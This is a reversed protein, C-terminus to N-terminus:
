GVRIFFGPNKEQMTTEHLLFAFAFLFSSLRNFPFTVILDIKVEVVACHDLGIKALSDKSQKSISVVVPSM